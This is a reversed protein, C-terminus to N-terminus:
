NTFLNSCTQLLYVKLLTHFNGKSSTEVFSSKLNRKWLNWKPSYLDETDSKTFWEINWWDSSAM